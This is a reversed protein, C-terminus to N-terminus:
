TSGTSRRIDQRVIEIPQIFRKNEAGWQVQWARGDEQDLLIFTYIDLTPCLTFRGVKGGVVALVKLSISTVFRHTEDGWQLQWVQGTRTDLKLLTYINQTRFIRYPVDTKQTPEPITCNAARRVQRMASRWLYRRMVPTSEGREGRSSGFALHFIAVGPFGRFVTRLGERIERTTSRARVIRM